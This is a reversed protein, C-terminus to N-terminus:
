PADSSSGRFKKNEKGKGRLAKQLLQSAKSRLGPERNITLGTMQQHLPAAKGRAKDWEVGLIAEFFPSFDHAACVEGKRKEAIASLDGAVNGRKTPIDLIKDRTVPSFYPMGLYFEQGTAELRERSGKQSFTRLDHIFNVCSQSFGAQEQALTTLIDERSGRVRNHESWLKLFEAKWPGRVLSREWIASTLKVSNMQGGEGYSQVSIDTLSKNDELQSCIWGLSRNTFVSEPIYANNSM